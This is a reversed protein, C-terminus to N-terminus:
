GGFVGPEQWFKQAVHLCNEYMIVSNKSKMSESSCICTYVHTIGSVYIKIEFQTCDILGSIDHNHRESHMLIMRLYCILILVYSPDEM